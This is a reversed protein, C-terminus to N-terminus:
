RDAIELLTDFMRSATQIVKSAAQYAQQYRLLNAAEEDLNVGSESQQLAQAQVLLAAQSTSTIELERTKNGVQSVVQGYADQYSASGGAMIKSTQLAGLLLVNRNDDAGNSNPGISFTDGPQPLGSIRVTWGNYGIEGGPTFTVGTPSGTGTGSVDFTTASTFTITVPERLNPDAPAPGSVMGASIRGTGTNAAPADTRIPAAAAILNTDQIALEIDSAGNITPRVLFEDGAAAAGSALNLRVGDVTQPFAAFTQTVGDNLRTVSYNTGDYRLRYDSTTLATYDSIEAAIVASGTNRTSANVSPSPMILFNGGPNGQLDQGLRHQDNFSGALGIAIRGLGNRAAGLEGNRFQLLGGLKGGELSSEKIPVTSAGSIYAAELRQPDVPSPITTLQFATSGAVLSQGTRIFISYSGDNQEVVKAGVEDNLQMVLEDRRDRLDNAPQGSAISEALRVAENLEAIKAALTNILSISNEVQVSVSDQIEDLQDSLSQFRRVLVEANSLVAQRTAPGSPDTAVDQLSAFFDNMAPALGLRGSPDALMKDIQQMQFFYADLEASETKAQMVQKVLLQDYVRRVTEVQVGQGIYGSGTAQTLGSSQVTQQRSYGPTAANSVNHGSVLLGQQAANLASLGIGFIGNGM